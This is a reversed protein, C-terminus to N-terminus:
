LYGLKELKNQIEETEKASLPQPLTDGFSNGAPIQTPLPLLTKGDMHNPPTMGCLSLITPALDQISPLKPLNNRCIGTGKAFLIGHQRHSGNMTTGKRGQFDKVPLELIPSGPTAYRMIPLSYGQDLNLELILDPINETESGSYLEERLWVHKVPQIGTATDKFILLAGRIDELIQMREKFSKQTGLPFRQDHLWISPFYNLEDSFAITDNLNCHRLRDNSEIRAPIRASFRRFLAEQIKVPIHPTLAKLNLKWPSNKIQKFKFFGALHLLRNISFTRSGTGGFGHDSLIFLYGASDNAEWLMEAAKDLKQYVHLITDKFRNSSSIRRPSELDHHMWFHHSVTDSESFVFVVTQMQNNLLLHRAIDARKVVMDPLFEAAKAHWQTGIRLEQIGALTYAHVRKKLTAYLEPPYCFSANANVAVPSDFGSITFPLLPEPPYSAPIGMSGAPFGHDNILKLFSPMKRYTRNIFTLDYSGFRRVAFDIIGHKGPNTGTLFTSWAPYTFPPTTSALPSFWGSQRISALFPLKGSDMWETALNPDFGDFGIILIETPM